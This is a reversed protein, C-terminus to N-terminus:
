DVTVSIVLRNITYNHLRNGTYIWLFDINVQKRTKNNNNVGRPLAIDTHSVNWTQVMPHRLRFPLLWLKWQLSFSQLINSFLSHIFQILQSLFCTHIFQILQSLFCSHIVQILQSLFCCSWQICREGVKLAVSNLNNPKSSQLISEDFSLFFNRAM